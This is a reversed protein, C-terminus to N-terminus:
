PYHTHSEGNYRIRDPKQPAQPVSIECVCCAFIVILMLYIYTCASSFSPEFNNSASFSALSSCSTTLTKPRISPGHTSFFMGSVSLYEVLGCIRRGRSGHLSYLTECTQM